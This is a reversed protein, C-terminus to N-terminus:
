PQQQKNHESLVPSEGGSIELVTLVISYLDLGVFADRARRETMRLRMALKAVTNKTTWRYWSERVSRLALRYLENM